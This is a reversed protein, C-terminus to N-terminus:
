FVFLYGIMYLTTIIFLIVNLKSYNLYTNLIFMCLIFIFLGVKNDTDSLFITNLFGLYVVSGRLALLVKSYKKKINNWM